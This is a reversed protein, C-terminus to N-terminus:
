VLILETETTHKLVTKLGKGGVYGIREWCGTQRTSQVLILGEAWRGDYIPAPEFGVFLIIAAITSEMLQIDSTMRTKTQRLEEQAEPNLTEVLVDYRTAEFKRNERQLTAAITPGLIKMRGERVHGYVDATTPTITVDIV